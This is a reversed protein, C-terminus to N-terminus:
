SVKGWPIDLVDYAVRKGGDKGKFVAYPAVKEVDQATSGIYKQGSKDDKYKFTKVPIGSPSTGVQKIDKKYKEDSFMLAIGAIAIATQIAAQTNAADAANEANQQNVAGTYNSQNVSNLNGTNAISLNAADSGSLGFARPQNQALQDQFYGRDYDQKDQLNKMVSSSTTKRAASGVGGAGGGAGFAGFSKALGENVFASQVAPDLPGTLEKYASEINKERGIVLGPFRNSFDEDSRQFGLLDAQTALAGTGEVNIPRFEAPEPQEPAKSFCM